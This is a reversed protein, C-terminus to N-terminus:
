QECKETADIQRSKKKRGNFVQAIVSVLSLEIANVCCCTVYIYEDLPVIFGFFKGVSFIENKKKMEELIQLLEQM